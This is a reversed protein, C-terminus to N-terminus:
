ILGVIHMSLLMITLTFNILELLRPKNFFFLTQAFILILCYHILIVKWIFSVIVYTFVLQLLSFYLIILKRLMSWVRIRLTIKGIFSSM